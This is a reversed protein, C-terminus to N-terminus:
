TSKSRVTRRESDALFRSHGQQDKEIAFGERGFLRAFLVFEAGGKLVSDLDIELWTEYPASASAHCLRWRVGNTVIGWQLEAKRLECVLLVQWHAGKTTRGLDSDEVVLCLGTAQVKSADAYLTFGDKKDRPSFSLRVSALCQRVYAQPNGDDLTPYEERWERITQRDAEVVEANQPASLLERLYVESFLQRNNISSM